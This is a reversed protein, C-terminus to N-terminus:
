RAKAVRVETPRVVVQVGSPVGDVAVEAVAGVAPRGVLRAIPHVGSALLRDIADRPGTV